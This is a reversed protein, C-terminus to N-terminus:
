RQERSTAPQRWRASMATVASVLARAAPTLITRTPTVISLRLPEIKERIPVIRIADGAAAAVPAPLLGALDTHKIMEVASFITELYLTCAPPTLSHQRFLEHVIAGPGGVPGTVLWEEGVLAALSRANVRRHNLNVAVVLDVDFLHKVAFDRGLGAAPVPGVAFDVRGERLAQVAHPFVEESIRVEVNPFQARFMAIAAPLVYMMSVPSCAAAIRGSRLQRMQEIDERAKRLESEVLRARAVLAQGYDTLAAGRASRQLLPAGVSQELQQLTRSLLPQTVKMRRAAASISGTTAVSALAQLQQLTM